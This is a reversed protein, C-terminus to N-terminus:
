SRLVPSSSLFFHPARARLSSACLLVACASAPVPPSRLFELKPPSLCLVCVPTPCPLSAPSARQTPFFVSVSALRHTSTPAPTPQNSRPNRACSASCLPIIKAHRMGDRHCPTHPIMPPCPLAAQVAHARRASHRHRCGGAPCGHAPQLRVHGEAQRWLPQRRALPLPAAQAAAGAASWHHHAARLRQCLAGRQHQLAARLQLAAPPICPAPPM